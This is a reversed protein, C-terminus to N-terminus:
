RYKRSWEIDHRRESADSGVGHDGGLGGSANRSNSSEPGSGPAAKMPRVSVGNEQSHRETM